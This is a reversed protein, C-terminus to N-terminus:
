NKNKKFRKVIKERIKTCAIRENWQLKQFFAGIKIIKDKNSLNPVMTLKTAM